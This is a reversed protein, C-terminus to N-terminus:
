TRFQVENVAGADVLRSLYGGGSRFEIVDTEVTEGDQRWRIDSTGIGGAPPWEDTEADGGINASASGSALGVAGAAQLVRRRTTTRQADPRHTNHTM